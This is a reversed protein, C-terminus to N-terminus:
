EIAGYVSQVDVKVRHAAKSSGYLSSPWGSAGEGPITFSVVVKSKSTPIVVAVDAKVINPMAHYSVPWRLNVLAFEARLRQVTSWIKSVRDLVQFSSASLFTTIGPTMSEASVAPANKRDMKALERQVVNLFPVASEEEKVLEVQSTSAVPQWDECDMSVKCEGDYVVELWDQRMQAIRWSHVQQLANYEDISPIEQHADM